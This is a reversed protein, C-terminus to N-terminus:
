VRRLHLGGAAAAVHELCVGADLRAGSRVSQEAENAIQWLQSYNCADACRRCSAQGVRMAAKETGESSKSGEGTTCTVLRAWLILLDRPLTILGSSTTRAAIESHQM